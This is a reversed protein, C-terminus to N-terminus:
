GSTTGVPAASAPPRGGIARTIQLATDAILRGFQRDKEPVIRVSPGSISIGAVADGHADFIAAAICRMGETREENDVSWGRTRIRALEAQLSAEDTITNQTFAALGQRAILDDLQQEGLFALLAKGVGSAHAPGRTGPRFFARIPEHTEVQNLFVVEGRDLIALNATERTEAMIRRMLPRSQEVLSTRGLFTSGIRFAELGVHWLQNPEDFEVIRHRELTLLVRYTTSASQDSAEAIESLSMGGGFAVVKLVEMARDLSQILTADGSRNFARPRGRTRKSESAM